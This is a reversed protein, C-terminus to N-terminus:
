EDVIQMELDRALSRRCLPCEWVYDHHLKHRPKWYAWEDPQPPTQRHGRM